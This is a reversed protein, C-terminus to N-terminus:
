LEEILERLYNYVREVSSIELKENPTHVEYINPGLSIFEMNPYKKFIIGCELGAHVVEVKMKEGYVREYLEVAKDRLESEKQFEWEPYGESVKYKAQLHKAINLIKEELEKIKEEKSSRLSILIEITNDKTEVIALNSSSQVIEPYEEMWTNVGTPLLDLLNLLRLITGEEIIEVSDLKIEDIFIELQPETEIYEDKIARVIEEIEFKFNEECAVIAYSSRPIANDKSGGFIEVVGLCSKEKLKLLIDKLIKNANGRKKHIEIGSHGGKLNEVEIKYIFRERVRDKEFPISIKIEKGGASGVILVGEEESDLNIFKKGKLIKDSLGLAGCLDVEESVTALLEIQPHKLEKDELIALGIALGIGNDAGLTTKNAKLYNGEIILEIPNKEFDHACNKEKECVMDMHGQLIIGEHKEYGESAQKRLIVNKLKDQHVEVGIKKGIEVLYDSIKSENKSNRPIKSIEQFYYFVREPKLNKINEM